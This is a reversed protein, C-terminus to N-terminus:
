LRMREERRFIDLFPFGFLVQIFLIAGILAIIFLIALKKGSMADQGPPQYDYSM